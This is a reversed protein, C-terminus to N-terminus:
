KFRELGDVDQRTRLFVRSEARPVGYNERHQQTAHVTQVPSHQKLKRSPPRPANHGQDAGGVPSENDSPPRLLRTCCLLCGLRSITGRM